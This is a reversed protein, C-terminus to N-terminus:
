PKIFNVSTTTQYKNTCAGALNLRKLDFAGASINTAAPRATCKKIENELLFFSIFFSMCYRLCRKLVDWLLSLVTLSGEIEMDVNQAVSRPSASSTLTRVTSRRQLVFWRGAVCLDLITQIKKCILLSGDEQALWSAGISERNKKVSLEWFYFIGTEVTYKGHHYTSRLTSWFRTIVYCTTTHVDFAGWM